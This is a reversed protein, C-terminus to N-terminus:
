RALYDMIKKDKRLLDTTAQRPDVRGRKVDARFTTTDAKDTANAKDDDTTKVSTSRRPAM